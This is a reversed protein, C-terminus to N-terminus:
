RACKQLDLVFFDGARPFMRGALRDLRLALPALRPARRVWTPAVIVSLGYVERCAFESAFMERWVTSGDLFRHPLLEGGIPTYEQRPRPAKGHLLGNVTEWLCFSNLAHLVVRGGPKLLRALDRSLRQLDDITNLGAFASLAGDFQGLPANGLAEAAMVRAELRVNRVAARRQLEAIMGPSVDIAVVEAGAEALHLADAGTGAAIDLLRVGSTRARSLGFARAYHAWLQARMWTAVPNEALKADYTPALADHARAVIELRQSV